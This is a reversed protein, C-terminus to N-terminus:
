RRGCGEEEMSALIAAASAPSDILARRLDRCISKKTMRQLRGALSTDQINFTLRNVTAEMPKQRRTLFDPKRFAGAQQPPLHWDDSRDAGYPKLLSGVETRVETPAPLSREAKSDARQEAELPGAANSRVIRPRHSGATRHPLPVAKPRTIWVLSTRLEDYAPPEQAPRLGHFMYLAFFVNAALAIAMAAIRDNAGEQM